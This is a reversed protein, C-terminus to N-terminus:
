IVEGGGNKPRTGTLIRIQRRAIDLEGRVVKIEHELNDLKSEVKKRMDREKELRDETSVLRKRLDDVKKLIEGFEKEDLDALSPLEPAVAEDAGIAWRKLLFVKVHPKSFTSPALGSVETISTRTLARNEDRLERVAAEIKDYTDQRAREQRVRLAEPLGRRKTM